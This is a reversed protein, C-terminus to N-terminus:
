AAAGAHLHLALDGGQGVGDVAHGVRQGGEGVLDGVHRALHADLALQAALGAHRAGRADPAVEGGVHVLEGGVQGGLDAGDGVHRGRHGLAVEGPRDRHLREALHGLELVVDVLHDPVEAVGRALVHLLVPELGVQGLEAPHQLALAVQRRHRLQDERVEGRQDGRVVPHEVDHVGRALLRGELEEGAVGVLVPHLDLALELEALPQHPLAGAAAPHEPDVVQGLAVDLDRRAQALRWGPADRHQRHQELALGPRHQLEGGEVLEVLDPEGEELLQGLADADHEVRDRGVHPGLLQQPLRLRQGLAQLALLVRQGLGVLPQLLLGARQLLGLLQELLLLVLQLAGVGLQLLLGMQQGALLGLHLLLVLLHLLGLHRQLLLGLLEGEDGLVLGLEQGVHRVLESGREVAQQDQGLDQALVGLPVEGVLCTPKAWVIWLEPESRSSRILSMRSRDLISDPVMATSM